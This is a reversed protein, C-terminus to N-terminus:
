RILVIRNTTITKGSELSYLYTSNQMKNGNSDTGNWEYEHYGKDLTKSTLTKIIKGKLDIIDLKIKAKKNLEFSIKVNKGFPNPFAPYLVILNNINKILKISSGKKVESGGMDPAIGMYKEGPINVLVKNKYKYFATGADVNPSNDSIDYNGNNPDIFVPDKSINGDLWNFIDKEQVAINKKGGFINSYAITIKNGFYENESYLEDPENKWLVSNTFLIDTNINGFIGGGKSSATNNVLTTKEVVYYSDYSFLGAGYGAQNNYIKSASLRGKRTRLMLIGGGRISAENHRIDLNNLDLISNELYIGGGNEASNKSIIGENFYVTADKFVAGGGADDAINETIFVKQMAIVSEGSCYIGGGSGEESSYASNNSIKVNELIAKSNFGIFIGGGFQFTKNNSIEINRFIPESAKCYIGGGEVGAINETIILGAFRPKSNECYIGGGGGAANWVHNYGGKIKLSNLSATEINKYIFCRRPNAQTGEADITTANSGSGYINIQDIAQIPFKEGNTTESYIGPALKINIIQGAKPSLQSLAYTLSRFPSEQSLGDNDNSGNPSVFVDTTIAKDRGEGNAFSFKGNTHVWYGPVAETEFDYVDFYCNEVNIVENINEFEAYITKGITAYNDLFYNGGPNIEKTDGIQGGYNPVGEFSYSGGGVNEGQNAKRKNHTNINKLNNGIIRNATFIPNSYKIFIGGGVRKEIKEIEGEPTEMDFTLLRGIGETITLGIIRPSFYPKNEAIISIVSGQAFDIPKSGNIITNKVHEFNKDLIYRSALVIKKDQILINEYYTGEEVLITDGTEAADIGMQIKAFDKPIYIIEAETKLAGM